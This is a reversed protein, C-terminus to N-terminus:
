DVGLIVNFYFIELQILNAKLLVGKVLIKYGKFISTRLIIEGLPTTVVLRSKFPTLEQNAHLAFLTSIFLRSAGFDFLVRAPEGFVTIIDTITNLNAQAEDATMAFIETQTMQPRQVGLTGFSSGAISWSFNFIKQSDQCFEISFDNAIELVIGYNYHWNAKSLEEQSARAIWLSFMGRQPVSCTRSHFQHCRPCRKSM